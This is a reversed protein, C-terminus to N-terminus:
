HRSSKTSHDFCLATVRFVLSHHHFADGYGGFCGTALHNASISALHRTSSPSVPPFSLSRLSFFICLTTLSTVQNGITTRLLCALLLLPIAGCGCVRWM